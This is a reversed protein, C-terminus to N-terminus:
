PQYTSHRTGTRRPVSAITNKQLWESKSVNAATKLVLSKTVSDECRNRNFFSDPRDTPTILAHSTARQHLVFIFDLGKVLFALNYRKGFATKGPKV